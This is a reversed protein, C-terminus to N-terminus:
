FELALPLPTPRVTSRRYVELYNAQLARNDAQGVRLDKYARRM